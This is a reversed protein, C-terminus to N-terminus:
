TLKLGSSNPIPLETKDNDPLTLDMGEARPIRHWVTPWRPKAPLPTGDAADDDEESAPDVLLPTDEPTELYAARYDGWCATVRVRSVEEPLLFSLGMSSPLFGPRASPPDPEDADDLGDAGEGSTIEGEQVPPSRQDDPARAPVLFGTLYWRSPRARLMERALDDDELGPGILDRRLTRVM